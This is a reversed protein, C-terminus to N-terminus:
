NKIKILHCPPFLMNEVGAFRDMNLNEKASVGSLGARWQDIIKVLIYSFKHLHFDASVTRGKNYKPNKELCFLRVRCPLPHSSNPFSTPQKNKTPINKLIFSRVGAQAKNKTTATILTYPTTKKKNQPSKEVGGCRGKKILFTSRNASASDRKM